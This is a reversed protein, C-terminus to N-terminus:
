TEDPRHSHRSVEVNLALGFASHLPFVLQAADADIKLTLIWEGSVNAKLGVMMAEFTTNLFQPPILVGTKQYQRKLKRNKDGEESWRVVAASRERADLPERLDARIREAAASISNEVGPSHASSETRYRGTNPLRAHKEATGRINRTGTDAGERDRRETAGLIGIDGTGQWPLPRDDDQQHEGDGEDSFRGYRIIGIGDDDTTEEYSSGDHGDSNGPSPTATGGEERFRPKFPDFPEDTSPDSDRLFVPGPDIDDNM